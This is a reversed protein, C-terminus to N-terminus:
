VRESKDFHPRPVRHRFMWGLAEPETMTEVERAHCLALTVRILALIGLAQLIPTM